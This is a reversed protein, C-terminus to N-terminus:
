NKVQFTSGNSMTASLVYSQGDSSVTYGYEINTAPDRIVLPINSSIPTLYSLGLPYRGSKSKYQELSARISQLNSFRQADLTADSAKTYTKTEFNYVQPQQNFVHLQVWSYVLAWVAFLVPLLYVVAVAISILLVAKWLKRGM